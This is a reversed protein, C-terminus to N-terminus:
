YPSGAFVEFGEAQAAQGLDTSAIVETLVEAPYVRVRADAPRYWVLADGTERVVDPSLYRRGDRERVGDGTADALRPVGLARAVLAADVYPVGGEVFAGEHETRSLRHMSFGLDDVPPTDLRAVDLPLAGINLILGGDPVIGSAVWYPGPCEPPVPSALGDPASGQIEGGGLSLRDGLTASAGTERDVVRVVGGTTDLAVHHPWVVLYREAPAGEPVDANLHLCRGDLALTGDVLADMTDVVRPSLRPLAVAAEDTPASDTQCGALAVLLLVRVPDPRHSM